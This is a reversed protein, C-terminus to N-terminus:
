ATIKQPRVQIRNIRLEWEDIAGDERIGQKERM